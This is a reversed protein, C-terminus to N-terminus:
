HNILPFCPVGHTYTHDLPRGAAYILSGAMETLANGLYECQRAASNVARCTRLRDDYWAVGPWGIAARLEALM